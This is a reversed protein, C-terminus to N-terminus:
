AVANFYVEKTQFASAYKKSVVQATTNSNDQAIYTQALEVDTKRTELENSAEGQESVSSQLNVEVQSEKAENSSSLASSEAVIEARAETINRSAQAAVKRDQASPEAPALAAAQVTQM